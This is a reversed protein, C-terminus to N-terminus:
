NWSFSLTHVDPHSSFLSSFFDHRYLFSFYSFCSPDPRFINILPLSYSQWSFTHQEGSISTPFNWERICNNKYTMVCPFTMSFFLFLFPHLFYGSQGLPQTLPLIELSSSSSPSFSIFLSSLLYLFIAKNTNAKLKYFSSSTFTSSSLSSADRERERVYDYAKERKRYLNWLSTWELFINM